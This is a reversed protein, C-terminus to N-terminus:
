FRVGVNPLFYFTGDITGIPLEAVFQDNLVMGPRFKWMFATSTASRGNNAGEFGFNGFNNNVSESATGIAIGLSTGAYLKFNNNLAMEFTASPTIPITSIGASSYDNSYLSTRFFGTEMGVFLNNSSIKFGYKGELNIGWTFTGGAVGAGPRAEFKFGADKGTYNMSSSNNNAAPITKYKPAAEATGMCVTILTVFMIKNM